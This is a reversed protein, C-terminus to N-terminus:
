SPHSSPDHLWLPWVNRIGATLVINTSEDRQMPHRAHRSSVVLRAGALTTIAFAGSNIWFLPTSTEPAMNLFVLRHFIPGIILLYQMSGLLWLVLAVLLIGSADSLSPALLTALVALSQTAVAALLWGVSLAEAVGAKSSGVVVAVFFTYTVLVWLVAGLGILGLAVSSQSALLVWPNGFVATGAVLTFFGPGRRHDVLDALLRRPWRILRLLTLVWLIPYALLNVGFLVWAVASWGELVAAISVIRTAMVM